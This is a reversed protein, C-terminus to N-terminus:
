PPTQMYDNIIQQLNADRINISIQIRRNKRMSAEDKGKAVPRFESFGSAQFYSGYSKELAPNKEMLAVIVKVARECSLAYNNEFSDDSDAYGSIVISDISSRVSGDSLVNEFAVAFKELLNYGSATIDSSGKDFLLTSNIVLNAKDDITVLPEKGSQFGSGLEGEISAKVQELIGLRLLSIEKLQGRVELLEDERSKLAMQDQALQAELDAIRTERQSLSSEMGAAEAQKASLAESARALDRNVAELQSQQRALEMQDSKMRTNFANTSVLQRIFMLVIFFFLVFVMSSMVDTFSPWFAEESQSPMRGRSAKM